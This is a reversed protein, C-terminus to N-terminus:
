TTSKKLTKDCDAQMKKVRVEMDKDPKADLLKQAVDLNGRVVENVTRLRDPKNVGRFEFMTGTQLFSNSLEIIYVRPDIEVKGSSFVQQGKDPNQGAGGIASFIVALANRDEQLEANLRESDSVFQGSKIKNLALNSGTFGPFSVELPMSAGSLKSRQDMATQMADMLYTHATNYYDSRMKYFPGAHSQAIPQKAGLAYAEAMQKNAEALATALAIRLVVAQQRLSENPASKIAKDLNSLAGSFDSRKLSITADAYRQNTNSAPPASSCALLLLSIAMALFPWPRHPM